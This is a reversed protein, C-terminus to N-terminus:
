ISFLNINYIFLTTFTALIVVILCVELIVKNKKSSKQTNLEEKKDKKSMYNDGIMLENYCKKM